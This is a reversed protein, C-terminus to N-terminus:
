DRSSNGQYLLEALEVMRLFEARYGRDDNVLGDRAYQKILEFNSDQKYESNRLIFGFMAVSSAFSLDASKVSSANNSDM